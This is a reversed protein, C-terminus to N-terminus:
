SGAYQCQPEAEDDRQRAKEGEVGEPKGGIPLQHARQHFCLFGRFRLAGTRRMLRRASGPVSAEISATLFRGFGAPGHLADPGVNAGYGDRNPGSRASRRRHAKLASSLTSRRLLALMGLGSMAGNKRFAATGNESQAASVKSEGARGRPSLVHTPASM